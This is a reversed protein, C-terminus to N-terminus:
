TSRRALREGLEVHDRPTFDFTRPTGWRRVELNANEDTGDPVSDQLLNPLGLQLADLEAQVGNIAAEADVLQQALQEGRAILPAADEGRGKAMGVQKATANREARVREAEIQAAKRREELNVYAAVDFKFGRRALNAAVAEPTARLLKPDIM